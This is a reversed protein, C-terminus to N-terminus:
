NITNSSSVALPSINHFLDITLFGRCLMDGPSWLIIILLWPYQDMWYLGHFSMTRTSARLLSGVRSSLISNSWSIQTSPMCAISASSSSKMLMQRILKGGSLCSGGAVRDQLWEHFLDLLSPRGSDTFEGIIKSGVPWDLGFKWYFTSRYAFSASDENQFGELIIDKLLEMITM